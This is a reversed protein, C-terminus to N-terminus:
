REVVEVQEACGPASGVVQLFVPRLTSTRKDGEWPRAQAHVHSGAPLAPLVPITQFLSFNHTNFTCVDLIQPLQSM